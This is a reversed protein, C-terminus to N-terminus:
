RPESLIIVRFFVLSPTSISILLSLAVRGVALLYTKVQAVVQKGGVLTTVYVSCELNGGETRIQAYAEATGNGGLM